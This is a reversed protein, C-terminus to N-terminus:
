LHNLHGTEVLNRIQNLSRVLEDCLHEIHARPTKHKRILDARLRAAQSGGSHAGLKSRLEQVTRLPVTVEDVIEQSLGSVKVAEEVWSISSWKPDGSSGKYRALAVFFKKELGEVIVKALAVLTDNWAKGAATLPYHLQDVLAPERLTFWGASSRHLDNLCTQLEQLPDHHDSWEGKFDTTIARQSITGRPDENFSKWYIQETFPLDGLYTLYTHIQGASNVDYTKLHWANRCSITRHGLAYKDPDAKYKDLVAAKFFVPSTQFPLSSAPEFYSAMADPACSVETIRKNKWDQTIFSAYQKPERYKNYLYSGYGESSLRPRIVQVGRLWGGNAGERHARFYLHLGDGEVVSDKLENWGSFNERICAVDFMQVLATGTASMQM